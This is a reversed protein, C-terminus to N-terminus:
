FLTKIICFDFYMEAECAMRFIYLAIAWDRGHPIKIACAIMCTTNQAALKTRRLEFGSAKKLPPIGSGFDHM